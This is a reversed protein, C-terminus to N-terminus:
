EGNKLCEHYNRMEDNGKERGKQNKENERDWEWHDERLAPNQKKFAFVRDEEKQLQEDLSKYM